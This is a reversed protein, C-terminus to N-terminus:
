SQRLGPIRAMLPAWADDPAVAVAHVPLGLREVNAARPAHTAVVVDHGASACARSRSSRCCTDRIAPPPSCSVCATAYM